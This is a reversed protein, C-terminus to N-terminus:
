VERISSIENIAVPIQNHGVLATKNDLVEFHGVLTEGSVTTIFVNKGDLRDIEAILANLVLSAEVDASLDEPTTEGPLIQDPAIM